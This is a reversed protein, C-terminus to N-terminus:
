LDKIEETYKKIANVIRIFTVIFVLDLVIGAWFYIDIMNNQEKTIIAGTLIVMLGVILSLALRLTNLIEKIEDIRAM